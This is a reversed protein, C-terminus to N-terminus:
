ICAEIYLKYKLMIEEIFAKLRKNEKYNKM